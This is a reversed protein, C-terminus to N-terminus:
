LIIAFLRYNVLILFVGEESPLEPLHFFFFAIGQVQIPWGGAAFRERTHAELVHLGNFFFQKFFDDFEFALEISEFDRVFWEIERQYLSIAFHDVTATLKKGLKIASFGSGKTLEFGDLWNAGPVTM